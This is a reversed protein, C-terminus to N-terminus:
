LGSINVLREFHKNVSKGDVNSKYWGDFRIANDLDDKPTGNIREVLIYFQAKNQPAPSLSEIKLDAGSTVIGISGSGSDKFKGYNLLQKSKDEDDYLRAVDFILFKSQIRFDIDELIREETNNKVEIQLM